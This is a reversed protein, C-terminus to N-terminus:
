PVQIQLSAHATLNAFNKASITTSWSGSVFRLDRPCNFALGLNRVTCYRKWAQGSADLGLNYTEPSILGPGSASAVDANQCSWSSSTETTISQVGGDDIACATVALQDGYAAHLSGGGPYTTTIGTTKNQVTFEFTPPTTDSSNPSTKCGECGPLVVLCFALLLQKIRRLAMPFPARRLPSNM